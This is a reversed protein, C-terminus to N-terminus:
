VTVWPNSRTQGIVYIMFINRLIDCKYHHIYYKIWTRAVFYNEMPLGRDMPLTLFFTM